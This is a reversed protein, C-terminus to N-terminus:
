YDGLKIIKKGKKEALEAFRAAGTGYPNNIYTIVYDSQKLMWENRYIIRFKPMAKELGEPFLSHPYISALYPDNDTPMRSLVVSFTIDYTESLESLVNFAAEDFSGQHGVYFNDVGHNEILDIIAAKLQPEINMFIFRHGFFTCTM